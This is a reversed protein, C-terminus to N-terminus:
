AGGKTSGSPHDKRDFWKRRKSLTATLLLGVVLLGAGPVLGSQVPQPAGRELAALREELADLQAQQAANEEQLDAVQERLAATEAELAQTHEYLGQVAALAVGDADLANIYDEGEGGLGPLLTNFDQAMPGVHRISTSQSQYNWTTIEIAALRALLAQTDVPEFNDKVNRDSHTNWSSGGAALYVGSPPSGNDTYIYFGGTSRFITRNDNACTIDANTADGWVFCGQNHAQARRGAAFSYNGEATNDYGGPITAYDGGATNSAGGGVSAASGNAGNLSGGSITANSGSATNQQGGGITAHGRNNPFGDDNGAQNGYGGGITGYIDTVRNVLGSEGGGGLVAGYVGASIENGSYGGILNSSTSHPLLRLNGANSTLTVGGTARVLFQDQGTSTFDANTSDAWVFAGDHNAKARRGAAFAYDGAAYNSQGGPIM